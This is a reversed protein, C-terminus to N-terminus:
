SNRKMLVQLFAEHGPLDDSGETRSKHPATRLNAAMIFTDAM